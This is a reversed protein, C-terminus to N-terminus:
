PAPGREIFKGSATVKSQGDQTVEAQLYHLRAISHDIWARVSVATGTRVPHHFRVTLEATVGSLEHAFLCNTMAGDLLLAIVGGHLQDTYGQLAASCEFHCEVAGDDTATFALGLGLADNDGCVVCHPHSRLATVQPDGPVPTRHTDSSM